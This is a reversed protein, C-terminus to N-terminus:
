FSDCYYRTFDCHIHLEGDVMLGRFSLLPHSRSLSLACSFLTHTLLLISAFSSFSGSNSLVSFSLLNSCVRGRLFRDLERRVPHHPPAVPSNFYRQKVSRWGYKEGSKALQHGRSARFQGMSHCKEEGLPTLGIMLKSSPSFFILLVYMYFRDLINCTYIRRLLSQSIM